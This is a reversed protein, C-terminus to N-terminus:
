CCPSHMFRGVIHQIANKLIEKEEKEWKARREEEEEVTPMPHLDDHWKFDFEAGEFEEDIQVISIGNVTHSCYAM